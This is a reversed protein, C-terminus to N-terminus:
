DRICRLSKGWSDSQSSRDIGDYIYSLGRYWCTEPWEETSSWFHAKYSLGDFFGNSIRQGSPLALFEYIDSGNGNESWGDISKLNLGADFGKFGSEYWEPDGYSYQSDASGSLIVWDNDTPIHWGTPCIGQIGSSNSYQMIENWQYLGGYETCNNETNEYCYKEIINNDEMELDGNIMTGVNLNEKFWCQSYIQISNYIQGEYTISSDGPCPINTAIQFTYFKDTKPEDFIGSEISNYNGIFILDDGTDFSFDQINNTSKHPLEINVRNIYEFSSIQGSHTPKCIIKISSNFEKWKASFFYLHEKGPKFKFLHQGKDLIQQKNIIQRGIADKIILDVNGKDPINMTITTQDTAPNPYNQFVKFGNSHQNFENIGVQYYLIISTDPYFIITDVDRTINKIVVSELPIWQEVNMGTFTLEISPKQGLINLGIAFVLINFLLISKKM